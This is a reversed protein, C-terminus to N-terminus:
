SGSLAKALGERVAEKRENIRVQPDQEVKHPAAKGKPFKVVEAM